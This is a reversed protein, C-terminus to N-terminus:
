FSLKSVIVHWVPYIVLSDSAIQISKAIQMRLICGNRSLYHWFCLFVRLIYDFCHELVQCMYQM